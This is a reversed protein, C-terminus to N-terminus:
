ILTVNFFTAQFVGVFLFSGTRPLSLKIENYVNVKRAEGTRNFFRISIYGQLLVLAMAIAPQVVVWPEAWPRNFASLDRWKCSFGAMLLCFCQGQNIGPRNSGVSLYQNVLPVPIFGTASGAFSKWIVQITLALKFTRCYTQHM